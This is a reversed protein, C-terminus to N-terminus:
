LHSCTGLSYWYNNSVHCIQSFYALYNYQIRFDCFSGNQLDGWRSVFLFLCPKLELVTESQRKRSDVFKELGQIIFWGLWKQATLRHMHESRRGVSGWGERSPSMGRGNLHWAPAPRDGGGRGPSWGDSFCSNDEGQTLSSRNSVCRLASVVPHGTEFTVM